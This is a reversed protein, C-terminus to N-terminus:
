SIRVHNILGSSTDHPSPAFTLTIFVSVSVILVFKRLDTVEFVASFPSFAAAPVVANRSFGNSFGETTTYGSSGLDGVAVRYHTVAAGNQGNEKMSM